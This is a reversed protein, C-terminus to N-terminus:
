KLGAMKLISNLTKKPIEKNHVPIPFEYNGKRMHLHKGVVLKKGDM